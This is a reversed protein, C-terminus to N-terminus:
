RSSDSESPMIEELSKEDLDPAQNRSGTNKPYTVYVGITALFSLTLALMVLVMTRIYLADNDHLWCNGRVGNEEQWLLCTSDFVLGGLIPGPITGVLRGVASTVGLSLPREDDRVSRCLSINKVMFRFNKMALTVEYM